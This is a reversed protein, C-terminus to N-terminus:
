NTFLTGNIHSLKILGTNKDHLLKMYMWSNRLFILTQKRSWTVLSWLLFISVSRCTLHCGECDYIKLFIGKFFMNLKKRLHHILFNDWLPTFVACHLKKCTSCGGGWTHFIKFGQTTTESVSCFPPCLEEM